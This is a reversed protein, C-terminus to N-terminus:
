SRNPRSKGKQQGRPNLAPHAWVAASGGGACFGGWTWDMMASEKVECRAETKFCTVATEPL